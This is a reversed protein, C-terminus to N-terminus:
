HYNHYYFEVDPLSYQVYTRVVVEMTMICTFLGQWSNSRYNQISNPNLCFIYEEANNASKNKEQNRLKCSDIGVTFLITWAYFQVTRIVTCVFKHAKNASLSLQEQTRLM